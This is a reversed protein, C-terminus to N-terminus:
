GKPRRVISSRISAPAVRSCTYLIFTTLRSDSGYTKTSAVYFTRPPFVKMPGGISLPHRGPLLACSSKRKALPIAGTAIRGSVALWGAGADGTGRRLSVSHPTPSPTEATLGCGAANGLPDDAPASGCQNGIEYRIALLVVYLALRVRLKHARRDHAQRQQVGKAFSMNESGEIMLTNTALVGDGHHQM